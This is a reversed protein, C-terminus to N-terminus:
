QKEVQILFGLFMWMKMMQLVLSFVTQKETTLPVKAFDIRNFFKSSLMFLLDLYVMEFTPLPLIKRLLPIWNPNSPTSTEEM